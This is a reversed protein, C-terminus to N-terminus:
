RRRSAKSRRSPERGAGSRRGGAARRAARPPAPRRPERRLRAAACWAAPVAEDGAASPQAAAAVAPPAGTASANTASASSAAKATDHADGSRNVLVVAGAGLLLAAGAIAVIAGLYRQAVPIPLTVETGDSTGKSSFDVDGAVNAPGRAACGGPETAAHEDSYVITAASSADVGAPAPARTPAAPLHAGSEDTPSAPRYGFVGRLDRRMEKATQYRDDRSKKLARLCIAELRANVGPRVQSPPVPEDTVQKLVVGLANEASFPM